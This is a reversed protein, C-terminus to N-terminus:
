CIALLKSWEKSNEYRRSNLGSKSNSKAFSIRKERDFIELDDELLWKVM